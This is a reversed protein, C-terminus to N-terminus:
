TQASVLRQRNRWLNASKEFLWFQEDDGLRGNARTHVPADIEIVDADLAKVAAALEDALAPEAAQEGRGSVRGPGASNGIQPPLDVADDAAGTEVRRTM